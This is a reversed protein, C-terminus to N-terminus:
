QEKVCTTKINEYAVLREAASECAKLSDFGIRDPYVWTGIIIVLLYNM